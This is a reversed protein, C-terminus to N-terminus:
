KQRGTVGHERRRYGTVTNSALGKVRRDGALSSPPKFFYSPTGPVRGREEARSRYNLHVCVVKTPECPPLHVADAIPVRRGDAAVLDEGERVARVAAGDLVIRRTEM